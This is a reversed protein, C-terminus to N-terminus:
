EEKKYALFFNITPMRFLIRIFNLFLLTIAIYQFIKSIFIIIESNSIIKTHNKLVYSLAYLTLGSFAHTWDLFSINSKGEPSFDNKNNMKVKTFMLNIFLFYITTSILFVALSIFQYKLSDSIVIAGYTICSLFSLLGTIQTLLRYTKFNFSQESTKEKSNSQQNRIRIAGDTFLLTPLMIWACINFGIELFRKEPFNVGLDEFFPLYYYKQYFIILAAYILSIPVLATFYYLFNNHYIQNEPPQRITEM